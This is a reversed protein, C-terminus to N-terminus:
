SRALKQPQRTHGGARSALLRLPNRGPGHDVAESSVVIFRNIAERHGAWAADVAAEDGTNLRWARGLATGARHLEDLAALLDPERYLIKIRAEALRYTGIDWKAVVGDAVARREEWVRNRQEESLAVVTACQELLLGTNRERRESRSLLHQSGFAILAGAIVGVLGVWTAVAGNDLV